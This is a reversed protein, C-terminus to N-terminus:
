NREADNEGGEKAVIEAVAAKYSEFRKYPFDKLNKGSANGNVWLVVSDSKFDNKPKGITDQADSIVILYRNPKVRWTADGESLFVDVRNIASWLDTSGKPTQALLPKLNNLYEEIKPQLKATKEKVSKNWEALESVYEDRRDAFEYNEEDEKQIPKLPPPIPEDVRFREIPKASDSRVFTVGIEGSCRSILDLLPKFDEVSVPPTGSLKMSGSQDIVGAVIVPNKCSSFITVQPLTSDNPVANCASLWFGFVLAYFLPITLITKNKM